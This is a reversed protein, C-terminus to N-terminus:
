PVLVCVRAAWCQRQPSFIIRLLLREPFDSWRNVCGALFSFRDPLIYSVFAGIFMQVFHIHHNSSRPCFQHRNLVEVWLHDCCQRWSQRAERKIWPDSRSTPSCRWWWWWRWCWWWRRSAPSGVVLKDANEGRNLDSGSSSPSKSFLYFYDRHTGDDNDSSTAGPVPIRGPRQGSGGQYILFLSFIFFLGPICDSYRPLIDTLSAM